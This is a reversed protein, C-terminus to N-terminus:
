AITYMVKHTHAHMLTYLCDLHMLGSLTDCAENAQSFWLQGANGDITRQCEQAVV